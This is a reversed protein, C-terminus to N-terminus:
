KIIFLYFLQASKEARYHNRRCFNNGNATAAPKQARPLSSKTLQKTETNKERKIGKKYVMVVFFIIAAFLLILLIYNIVDSGFM